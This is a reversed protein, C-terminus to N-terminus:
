YLQLTCFWDSNCRSLYTLGSRLAGVHKLRYLGPTELFITWLTRTHFLTCVLLINISCNLDLLNLCALLVKPANRVLQKARSVLVITTHCFWDSNCRSLYTLGRRLAGVHKLRYLRKAQQTVDRYVVSHLILCPVECSPSVLSVIAM